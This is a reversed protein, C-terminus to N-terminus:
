WWMFAQIGSWKVGWEGMQFIVMTSSIISLLLLIELINRQHVHSRGSAACGGRGECDFLKSNYHTNSCTWVVNWSRGNSLTEEDDWRVWEQLCNMKWTNNIIMLMPFHILSYIWGVPFIYWWLLQQIQRPHCTTFFVCDLFCWSQTHGTCVYIYIYITAWFFKLYAANYFVISSNKRYCKPASPWSQLHLVNSDLLSFGVM